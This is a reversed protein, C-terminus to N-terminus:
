ELSSAYRLWFRAFPCCLGQIENLCKPSREWSTLGLVLFSLSTNLYGTAKERRWTQREKSETRGVLSFQQESSLTVWSWQQPDHGSFWTIGQLSSVWFQLTCAPWHCCNEKATQLEHAQVSLATAEVEPSGQSLFVHSFWFSALLLDSFHETPQLVPCPFPAPSRWGPSPFRNEIELHRGTMVSFVSGLGVWLSVLSPSLAVTM